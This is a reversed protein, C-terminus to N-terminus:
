RKPSPVIGYKNRNLVPVQVFGVSLSKKILSVKKGEVWDSPIEEAM